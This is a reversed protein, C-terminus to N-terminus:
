SSAYSSIIKQYEYFKWTRVLKPGVEPELRNQYLSRIFQEGHTGTSFIASMHNMTMLSDMVDVSGYYQLFGRGEFQLHFVLSDWQEGLFVLGCPDKFDGGGILLVASTTTTTTTVVDMQSIIWLACFISVEMHDELFLVIIQNGTVGYTSLQMLENRKDIHIVGHSWNLPVYEGFVDSDVVIVVLSANVVGVTFRFAHDLDNVMRLLDRQNRGIVCVAIPQLTSSSSGPRRFVNNDLSNLVRNDTYLAENFVVSVAAVVVVVVVTLLLFTVVVVCRCTAM